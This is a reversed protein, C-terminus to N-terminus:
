KKFALRKKLKLYRDKLSKIFVAWRTPIEADSGFRKKMHEQLKPVDKKMEVYENLLGSVDYVAQQNNKVQIELQEIYNM